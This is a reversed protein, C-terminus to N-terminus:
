GGETGSGTTDNMNTGFSTENFNISALMAPGKPGPGYKAAAQEYIPAPKSPM